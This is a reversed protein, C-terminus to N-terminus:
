IEQRCELYIESKLTIDLTPIAVPKLNVRRFETAEGALSVFDVVGEVRNAVIRGWLNMVGAERKLILLFEIRDRCVADGLIAGVVRLLVWEGVMMLGGFELGVRMISPVPQAPQVSAWSRPFAEDGSVFVCLMRMREGVRVMARVGRRAEAAQEIKSKRM